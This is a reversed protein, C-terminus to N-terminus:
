GAWVRVRTRSWGGRERLGKDGLRADGGHWVQCPGQLAGIQEWRAMEVDNWAVRRLMPHKVEVGLGHPYILAAISSKSASSRCRDRHLYLSCRTDSARRDTQGSGALLRAM